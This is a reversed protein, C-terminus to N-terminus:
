EVFSDVYTLTVGHGDARIEIEAGVAFPVKRPTHGFDVGTIVPLHTPVSRLILEDLSSDLADGQDCEVATGFVLASIADLIGALRLHTIMADIRMWPVAVEEVFLIAGAVPPMWQTGILAQITSLHGGIAPGSVTQGDALRYHAWDPGAVQNGAVPGSVIAWFADMTEPNVPRRAFDVGSPGHLTLVGARAAVGNCVASPDSIGTFVKPNQRILDFDLADLLGAAGKGGNAPIILSVEPDRYMDQLDAVRYERSGAIYGFDELVHSGLKVPHGRSEFYGVVNDLQEKSVPASTSVIGVASGAVVCPPQITHSIV